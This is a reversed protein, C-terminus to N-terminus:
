YLNKDYIEKWKFLKKESLNNEKLYTLVAKIYEITANDIANYMDDTKDFGYKEKLENRYNVDVHFDRESYYADAFLLHVHGLQYIINEIIQTIERQKIFVENNLIEELITAPENFDLYDFVNELNAFETSPSNDKLNMMIAGYIAQHWHAKGVLHLICEATEKDINNQELLTDLNTM